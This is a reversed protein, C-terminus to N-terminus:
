FPQFPLIMAKLFRGIRNPLWRRIHICMVCGFGFIFHLAKYLRGELEMQIKWRFFAAAKGFSHWWLDSIDWESVCFSMFQTDLLSVFGLSVDSSVDASMWMFVYIRVQCTSQVLRKVESETPNQGLARLVDGVQGVQFRFGKTNQTYKHIPFNSFNSLIKM